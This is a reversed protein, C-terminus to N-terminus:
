GCPKHQLGIGQEGRFNRSISLHLRPVKQSTRDIASRPNDIFGGGNCAVAIVRGDHVSLFLRAPEDEAVRADATGCIFCDSKGRRRFFRAGFGLATV